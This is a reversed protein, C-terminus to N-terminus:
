HLRLDIDSTDGLHLAVNEIAQKEAERIYGDASALSICFLVLVEKLIAYKSYVDLDHLFRNIGEDTIKMEDIITLYQNYSDRFVIPSIDAIKNEKLYNLLSYCCMKQEVKAIYGDASAIYAGVLSFAKVIEKNNLSKMEKALAKSDKWLNSDIIDLPDRILGQRYIAPVIWGGLAGIIFARVFFWAVFIVSGVQQSNKFFYNDIPYNIPYNYLKYKFVLCFLGGLGTIIGVFLADTLSERHKLKRQPTIVRNCMKLIGLSLFFVQFLFCWYRYNHISIDDISPLKGSSFCDNSFWEVSLQFYVIMLYSVLTAALTFLIIDVMDNKRSNEIILVKSRKMCHLCMIMASVYMITMQCTYFFVENLLEGPADKQPTIFYNIYTLLAHACFIGLLIVILQKWPRGRNDGYSQVNFGLSKIKKKCLPNDKCATLLASAIFQCVRKTLKKNSFELQDNLNNLLDQTTKSDREDFSISHSYFGKFMDNIMDFHKKIDLYEDNHLRIFRGYGPSATWQEIRWLLGCIKAWEMMRDYLCKLNKRRIDHINLKDFLSNLDFESDLLDDYKLIDDSNRTKSLKTLQEDFELNHYKAYKKVARKLEEDFEFDANEMEKSLLLAQSPISGLDWLWLLFNQHYTKILSFSRFATVILLVASLPASFKLESSNDVLVEPFTMGVTEALKMVYLPSYSLIFTVFFYFCLLMCSYIFFFLVFRSTFTLCNNSKPTFKLAYDKSPTNYYNYAFFIIFISGIVLDIAEM